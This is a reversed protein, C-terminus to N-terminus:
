ELTKTGILERREYMSVTHRFDAELKEVWQNGLYHGYGDKYNWIFYGDILPDSLKKDGWFLPISSGDAKFLGNEKIQIGYGAAQLFYKPYIGTKADGIIIKGNKHIFGFDTIGGVWLKESFTHAESWLFCDVEEMAWQTFAPLTERFMTTPQGGNKDIAFKICAEIEAHMDTGKKGQSKKYEDHNRYQIELWEMYEHLNMDGALRIADQGKAALEERIKADPEKKETIFGLNELAKASGYWALPPPYVENIITTTGFLPKYDEGEKALEHLHKRAKDTFRYKM